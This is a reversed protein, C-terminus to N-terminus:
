LNQFAHIRIQALNGHYPADSQRITQILHSFIQTAIVLWLWMRNHDDSDATHNEGSGLITDWKAPIPRPLPLSAPFCIPLALTASWGLTLVSGTLVLHQSTQMHPGQRPQAIGSCLAELSFRPHVQEVARARNWTLRRSQTCISVNDPLSCEELPHHHLSGACPAHSLLANRICYVPM